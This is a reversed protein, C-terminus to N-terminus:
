KAHRGDEESERIFYAAFLLYVLSCSEQAISTVSYVQQSGIRQKDEPGPSFFQM